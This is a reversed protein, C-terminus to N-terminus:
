VLVPELYREHKNIVSDDLAEKALAVEDPAILPKVDDWNALENGPVVEVDGLDLGLRKLVKGSCIWRKWRAGNADEGLLYMQRDRAKVVRLPGYYPLPGAFREWPRPNQRIRHAYYLLGAFVSQEQSHTRLRDRLPLVASEEGLSTTLRRAPRIPVSVNATYGADGYDSYLMCTAMEDAEGEIAFYRPTLLGQPLWGRTYELNRKYEIGIAYTRHPLHDPLLCHALMHRLMFDRELGSVDALAAKSLVFTVQWPGNFVVSFLDDGLDAVEIVKNRRQLFEEAEAWRAPDVVRREEEEPGGDPNSASAQNALLHRRWEVHLAPRDTALREVLMWTQVLHLWDDANACFLRTRSGTDEITDGLLTLLELALSESRPTVSTRREYSNAGAGALAVTLEEMEEDNLTEIFDALLLPYDQLVKYLRVLQTMNAGKGNPLTMSDGIADDEDHDHFM